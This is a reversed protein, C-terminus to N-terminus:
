INLVMKNLFCWNEIKVMDSALQAGVSRCDASAELTSDDAYM